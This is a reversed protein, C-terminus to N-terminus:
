IREATFTVLNIDNGIATRIANQREKETDTGVRGFPMSFGQDGSSYYSKYVRTTIRSTRTIPTTSDGTRYYVRAPRFRKPEEDNKTGLPEYGLVSDSLGQGGRAQNSRITISAKYLTDAPLNKGFPKLYVSTKKRGTPRESAAPLDHSNASPNLRWEWYNRLYKDASNAPNGGSALIDLARRELDRYPKAM